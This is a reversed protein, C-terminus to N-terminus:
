NGMATRLFLLTQSYDTWLTILWLRCLCRLSVVWVSWHFCLLFDNLRCGSGPSIIKKAHRQGSFVLVMLAKAQARDTQHLLSSLGFSKQMLQSLVPSIHSFWSCSLFWPSVSLLSREHFCYAGSAHPQQPTEQLFFFVNKNPILSEPCSRSTGQVWALSLSNCFFVIALASSPSDSCVSNPCFHM